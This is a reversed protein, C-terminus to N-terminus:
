AHEKRDSKKQLLAAVIRRREAIRQRAAELEALNMQM